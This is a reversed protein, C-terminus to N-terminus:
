NGGAIAATRSREVLTVLREDAEVALPAERWRLGQQGARQNAARLAALASDVEIPYTDVEELTRGIVEVEPSTLPILDCGSRLCYGEDLQALLGYLALAVVASRGAHDRAPSFGGDPYEFRLRRAATCSIVSTQVAETIVAGRAAV